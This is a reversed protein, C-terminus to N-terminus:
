NKGKYLDMAEYKALKTLFLHHEHMFHIHMLIYNLKIDVVTLFDIVNYTVTTIMAHDYFLRLIVSLNITEM